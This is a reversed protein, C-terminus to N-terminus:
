IKFFTNIKYFFLSFKNLYGNIYKYKQLSLGIDHLMRTLEHTKWKFNSIKLLVKGVIVHVVSVQELCVFICGDFDCRKPHLIHDRKAVTEGRWKCLLGHRVKRTRPVVGKCMTSTACDRKRIGWGGGVGVSGEIRVVINFIRHPSLQLVNSYCSHIFYSISM